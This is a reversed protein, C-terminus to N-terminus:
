SMEAHIVKGGRRGTSVMQRGGKCYKAESRIENWFVSVSGKPHVVWDKEQGELHGEGGVLQGFTVSQSLRKYGLRAVFDAFSIIRELVIAEVSEFNAKALADAYSLTDDYRKRKQWGFCRLLM